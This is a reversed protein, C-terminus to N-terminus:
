PCTSGFAALIALMDTTTVMGDGSIDATCNSTCGFQGLLALVDSVAVMGDGNLDAECAGPGVPVEGYLVIDDLRHEAGNGSNSMRVVLELSSAGSPLDIPEIVLATQGGAMSGLYLELGDLLVVFELYDSPNIGVASFVASVKLDEGDQVNIPDSHWQIMAGSGNVALVTDAGASPVDGLPAALLTTLVSDTLSCDIAWDFSNDVTNAGTAGNCGLGLVYNDFREEWVIPPLPDPYPTGACGYEAAGCDTLIDDYTNADDDDCADGLEICSGDDVTAEGDFNCAAESMCGPVDAPPEWFWVRYVLDPHDLYPNRNGQAIEVRNNKTLEVADVPDDLHWQYLVAPDAVDSLPGAETPYMTYFYFVARAVDGKQAERPEWVGGSKESWEDPNTPTSGQSLYNGSADTGYWQASADPVEGFPSNSRASNASGHCPRMSWIDSRMPTASAYFSQPVIHEANIPNPYTVYDSAQEFGTYVCAIQGGSEEVFGYMQVRAGNYGLDDHLGDYWNTKLWARLPELQLDNPPLPQAALQVSGFQLGFALLVLFVSLKSLRSLM